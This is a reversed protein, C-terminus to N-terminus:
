PIFARWTEGFRDIGCVLAMREAIAADDLGQARAVAMAERGDLWPTLLWPELDLRLARATVIRLLSPPLPERSPAAWTPIGTPDVALMVAHRREVADLMMCRLARISTEDWLADSQVAHHADVMTALARATTETPLPALIDLPSVPSSAIATIAADADDGVTERLLRLADDRRGSRSLTAVLSTRGELSPSLSRM